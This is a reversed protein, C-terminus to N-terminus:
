FNPLVLIIRFHGSITVNDSRQEKFLKFLAEKVDTREPKGFLKKERDTRQLRVFLKPETKGFRKSRLGFEPYVGAKRKGDYIQRTVEFKKEVSLVKTKNVVTAM